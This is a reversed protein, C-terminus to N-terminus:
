GYIKYQKYIYEAMTEIPDFGLLPIYDPTFNSTANVDIISYEDNLTEIVDISGMEIELLRTTELADGLIKGPCDKYVEYRSGMSYSSISGEGLFRKLATMVQNDVVEVRTTFKKEPEIFTQVIWNGEALDNQASSLEEKGNIIRIGWSRGGCDRKIVCSLM